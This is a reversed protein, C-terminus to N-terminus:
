AFFKELFLLFFLVATLMHARAESYNEDSSAFFALTSSAVAGLFFLIFM